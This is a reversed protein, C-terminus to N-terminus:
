DEQREPKSAVLSVLYFPVADHEHTETLTIEVTHIGPKGHVLLTQMHLSDGWTEEFNADLKVAHEADGDVIATAIPAPQNVSKRYQVALETGEVEFCISDGTEAATWGNKFFEYLHKQPADDPTFGKETIVCKNGEFSNPYYIGNQYRISREYHNDTLPAPMEGPDVEDTDLEAYVKELFSIIVSAVLAHGETNPHLDDPTIDRNRIRGAKVEEYITTQMCVCPLGYHAGISQHIEQATTGKDYMINHILAVAPKLPNKYVRRVLGEYTEKFFPTNEDNVSFEIFVMDPNYVMLDRDVRSVGFESTTGGIGANAYTFATKPFKKEWWEFVLHAYCNSHCSAVAGQTISGGLFGITIRDGGRARRMCEKIRYWNGRNVLGKEPHIEYSM